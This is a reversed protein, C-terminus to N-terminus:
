QGLRSRVRELKGNIEDVQLQLSAMGSETSECQQYRKVCKLVDVLAEYFETVKKRESKRARHREHIGNIHSLRRGMTKAPAKESGEDSSNGFDDDSVEESAMRRSAQLSECLRISDEMTAHWGPRHHENSRESTPRVPVIGDVPMATTTRGYARRRGQFPARAGGGSVREKSGPASVSEKSGGGGGSVSKKAGGSVSERSGPSRTEQFRTVKNGNVSAASKGEKSGPSRTEEADDEEGDSIKNLVVHSENLEDEQRMQQKESTYPSPSRRKCTGRKSLTTEASSGENRYDTKPPTKPPSEPMLKRGVSPVNYRRTRVSGAVFVRECIPPLVGETASTKRCSAGSSNRHSSPAKPTICRHEQTVQKYSEIGHSHLDNM